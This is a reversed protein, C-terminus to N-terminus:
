RKDSKGDAPEKFYRQAYKLFTPWNPGTTHGGSHQRFAAEGDVLALRGLRARSRAVCRLTLSVLRGDRARRSDRVAEGM